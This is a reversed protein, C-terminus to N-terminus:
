VASSAPEAAKAVTTDVVAPVTTAVSTSSGSLRSQLSAIQQQLGQTAELNSAILKAQRNLEGSIDTAGDTSPAATAVPQAAPAGATTREDLDVLLHLVKGIIYFQLFVLIAILLSPLAALLPVPGIGGPSDFNERVFNGVQSLGAFVGIASLIGVILMIWALILSLTGIRHLNRYRSKV